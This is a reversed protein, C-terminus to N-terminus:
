EFGKIADPIDKYNPSDSDARYDNLLAIMTMGTGKTLADIVPPVDVGNNLCFYEVFNKVNIDQKKCLNNITALQVGSILDKTNITLEPNTEEATMIKKLGLAKKLARGEARTEALAARYQSYPHTSNEDTVDAVGGFSVNQGQRADEYQWLFEVEYAVATARENMLLNTTVSSIIPGLLQQAVRRLGDVTPADDQKEDGALQSLVYDNWEKSGLVPVNIETEETQEKESNQIAKEDIIEIVDKLVVEENENDVIFDVVKKKGRPM